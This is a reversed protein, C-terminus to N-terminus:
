RKKRNIDEACLNVLISDVSLVADKQRVKM